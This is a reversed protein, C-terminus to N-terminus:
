KCRLKLASFSVTGYGNKMGELKPKTHSDWTEKPVIGAEVLKEFVGITLDWLKKHQDHLLLVLRTSQTNFSSPVHLAADRILQEIRADPVPSKSSLAYHTRRQKALEVFTDTANSSISGM